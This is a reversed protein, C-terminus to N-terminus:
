GAPATCTASAGTTPADSRTPRAAAAGPRAEAGPVVPGCSSQSPIPTVSGSEATRPATTRTVSAPRSPPASPPYVPSGSPVPAAPLNRGPGPGALAIAGSLVAATVGALAGAVALRRRRRLRGGRRMILGVDLGASRPPDCAGGPLVSGAGGDGRLAARFTDLDTM